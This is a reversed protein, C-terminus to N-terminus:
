ANILNAPQYISRFSGRLDSSLFRQTLVLIKVTPGIVKQKAKGIRGVEYMTISQLKYNLVTNLLKM